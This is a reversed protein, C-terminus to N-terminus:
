KSDHEEEELEKLGRKMESIFDSPKYAKRIFDDRINSLDNIMAPTLHHMNILSVILENYMDSAGTCYSKLDMTKM